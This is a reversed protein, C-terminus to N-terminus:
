RLPPAHSNPPNLGTSFPLGEVFLTLNLAAAIGATRLVHTRHRPHRPPNLMQNHRCFRQSPGTEISITMHQVQRARDFEAFAIKCLFSKM